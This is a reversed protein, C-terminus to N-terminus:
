FLIKIRGLLIKFSKMRKRPTVTEILLTYIAVGLHNVIRILSRHIVNDKRALAYFANRSVGAERFMEGIRM